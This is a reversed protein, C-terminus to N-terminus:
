RTGAPQECPPVYSKCRSALWKGYYYPGTRHRSEEATEEVADAARRGVGLRLADVVDRRVLEHGLAEASDVGGLEFFVIARRGLRDVCSRDATRMRSM